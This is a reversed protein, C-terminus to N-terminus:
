AFIMLPVFTWIAWGLAVWVGINFEAQTAPVIFLFFMPFFGIIAVALWTVFSAEQIDEWLRGKEQRWVPLSRKIMLGLIFGIMIVILTALIFLTIRAADM